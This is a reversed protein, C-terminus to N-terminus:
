KTSAMAAEADKSFQNNLYPNAEKSKKVLQEGEKKDANKMKILGAILLLEPNKSGTAMAASLHKNAEAMNGKKFYIEALVKNVDINAPRANHELMAYQLAKDYDNVLNLYIKAYELSMDHGKAEDDAMMALIEDTTKKALETRGTEQYIAALDVYFSFEPIIAVAENLLKEAEEKNGKKLEVSALAALAFPYDPREVLATQYEKEAAMLDGYTEYINGLTTRTWAMNEYGAYGSEVAMKMAEIAGQPDGHIERLYSARSYSMLDPRKDMMTQGMLVAETYNGLEVNADVLAGYTQAHAPNLKVAMEATQRADEFHHQSLLVSAKLSLAKFRVTESVKQGLVHTLINLVAPYYHGHEGTIRAENVFIESLKIYTDFDNPDRQLKEKVASVVSLTKTWEETKSLEGQRMLLEPIQFTSSSQVAPVENNRASTSTCSPTLASIAALAIIAFASLKKSYSLVNM